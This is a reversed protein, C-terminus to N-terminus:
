GDEGSSEEDRMRKIQENAWNNCRLIWDIESQSFDVKRMMSYGAIDTWTMTERCCNFIELFSEFVFLFCPPIDPERLYDFDACGEFLEEGM